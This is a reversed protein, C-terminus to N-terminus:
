KYYIDGNLFDTLFHIAMIFIVTKAGLPLHKIEIPSLTSKM